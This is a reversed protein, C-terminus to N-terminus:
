QADGTEPWRQPVRRLEGTDYGLERLYAVHREFEPEPITPTRAMIWAYDRKSRVIVTQSYAEDLRGIVYEAQIPWVFQMGWVANGTGERVTGVPTMTKVPADFGGRRYRFTTRIRGREDLRYSEIANHVDRELPSPVHAILYWGGMFRPLDVQPVPEIPAGGSACGALAAGLLGPLVRSLRRPPSM